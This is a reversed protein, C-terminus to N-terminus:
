GILFIHQWPPGGCTCLTFARQPETTRLPLGFSFCASGCWVALTHRCSRRLQLLQLGFSGGFVLNAATPAAKALVAMSSTLFALPATPGYFIRHLMPTLSVLIACFNAIIPPNKLVSSKVRKWVTVGRSPPPLLNAKAEAADPPPPQLDPVNPTDIDLSNRVIEAGAESGRPSTLAEPDM